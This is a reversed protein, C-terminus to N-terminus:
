GCNLLVDLEYVHFSATIVWLCEWQSRSAVDTKNYVLVFQALQCTTKPKDEGPWTGKTARTVTTSVSPSLRSPYRSSDASVFGGSGLSRTCTADAAGRSVGTGGAGLSSPELRPIGGGWTKQLDLVAKVVMKSVKYYLHFIFTWEPFM